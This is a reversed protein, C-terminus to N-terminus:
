DTKVAGKSSALLVEPHKQIFEHLKKAGSIARESLMIVPATPVGILLGVGFGVTTGVRAGEFGFTSGAQSGIKGGGFAVDLLTSKYEQVLEQVSQQMKQRTEPPLAHVISAQSSIKPDGMFM